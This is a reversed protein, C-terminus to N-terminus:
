RRSARVTRPQDDVSLVWDWKRDYVAHNRLSRSLGSTHRVIPMGRLPRDAEAPFAEGSASVIGSVNLPGASSSATLAVVQDVANGARNANVTARALGVSGALTGEFIVSGHYRIVLRDAALEVAAPENPPPAVGTGQAFVLSMTGCWALVAASTRTM